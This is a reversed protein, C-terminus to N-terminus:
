TPMLHANHGHTDSPGIVWHGWTAVPRQHSSERSKPLAATEVMGLRKTHGEVQSFAMSHWLIGCDKQTKRCKFSQWLTPLEVHDHLDQLSSLTIGQSIKLIVFKMM